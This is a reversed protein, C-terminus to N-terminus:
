FKYPNSDSSDYYNSIGDGDSDNWLNDTSTWRNHADQAYDSDYKPSQGRRYAFASPTVSAFFFLAIAGLLMARKM